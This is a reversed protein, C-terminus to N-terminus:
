SHYICRKLIREQVKSCSLPVFCGSHWWLCSSDLNRHFYSEKLWVAAMLSTKSTSRIGFSGKLLIPYKKVNQDRKQMHVPINLRWLFQFWTLINLHFLKQFILIKVIKKEIRETLLEAQFCRNRRLLYSIFIKRQTARIKCFYSNQDQSNFEDM